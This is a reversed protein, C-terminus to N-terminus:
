QLDGTFTVKRPFVMYSPSCVDDSHFSTTVTGAAQRDGYTIKPWVYGGPQAPAAPQWPQPYLRYDPHPLADFFEIRKVKGNPHFEVARVKACAAMAHDGSCWRCKSM